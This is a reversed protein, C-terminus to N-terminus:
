GAETLTTAMAARAAHRLRGEVSLRHALAHADGRDREPLFRVDLNRNSSITAWCTSESDTHIVAGPAWRAGRVVAQFEADSSSTAPFACSRAALVTGAAGVLVLGAGGHGPGEDVTVDVGLASALEVEVAGADWDPHDTVIRGRLAAYRARGFRPRDRHDVGAPLYGGDVFLSLNPAWETALVAEVARCDVCWKERPEGCVRCGRYRSRHRQRQSRVDGKGPTVTV